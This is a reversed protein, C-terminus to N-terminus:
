KSGGHNEKGGAPPNQAPNPNSPAQAGQQGQQPLQMNYGPLPQGTMPDVPVPVLEVRPFLYWAILVGILLVTLYSFINMTLRLLSDNATEEEREPMTVFSQRFDEAEINESKRVVAQETGSYTPEPRGSEQVNEGGRPDAITVYSLRQIKGSVWGFCGEEDSHPDFVWAVQGPSAFFNKHIFTDHDSLFVGFGPHSHYWGVIREDPYKKDKVQYIHEWTDQTFTVHAGAEEANEGAICAQVEIRGPRDQGILVGCIEASPSSRAHQRIQRVVEASVSLSPQAATKQKASM